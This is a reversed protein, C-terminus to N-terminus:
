RIWYKADAKKTTKFPLSLSIEEQVWVLESRMQSLQELDVEGRMLRWIKGFMGRAAQINAARVAM